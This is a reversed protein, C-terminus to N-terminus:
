DVIRCRRLATPSGSIHGTGCVAHRHAAGRETHPRESDNDPRLRDFVTRPSERCGDVAKEDTEGCEQHRQAFAAADRVVAGDGALV